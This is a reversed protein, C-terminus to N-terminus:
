GIKLKGKVVGFKVKGSLFDDAYKGFVEYRWGKSFPVREGAAYKDIEENSAVLRPVVKEEAARVKLLIKLLEVVGQDAEKKPRPKLKPQKDKPIALGRAIAAFVEEGHQLGGNLTRLNKLDDRTKPKRMALEMMVEDKMVWRRPRNVERAKLDRWKALEMLVGLHCNKKDRHRIKEWATDPDERYNDIDMLDKEEEILWKKRREKKLRAELTEYIKPLHLVDALAYNVQGVSLPRRSWDTFRHSKDIEAGVIARVLEQYGVQEGFGCVMAAIQTDFINKPLRGTLNYLIELDQTGSHFVLTKKGTLIKLLPKLDLGALPDVAYCDKGDSLQILCLVPYFTRERMFETDFYIIKAKDLTKCLKQLKEDTDIYM